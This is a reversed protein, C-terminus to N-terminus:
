AIAMLADLAMEKKDAPKGYLSDWMVQAADNSVNDARHDIIYTFANLLAYATGGDLEQNSEFQDLIKNRSDFARTKKLQSSDDELPYMKNLFEMVKESQVQFKALHELKEIHAELGLMFNAMQELANNIKQPAGRTHSIKFLSGNAAAQAEAARLTNNCVIRTNHAGCKYSGRGLPNFFMLNSVTKSKDGTISFEKVKLNLFFTAGNRLTGVSEIKLDPFVNLFNGEIHEMLFLNNELCFDDGVSPVIVKNIDPRFIARCGSEIYRINDDQEVAVMNNRLEMPYDSVERAMEVPVFSDLTKYSEIKHWTTGFVAGKDYKGILHAM